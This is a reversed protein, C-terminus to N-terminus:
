RVWGQERLCAVVTNRVLEPSLEGPSDEWGTGSWVALASDAHRAHLVPTRSVAAYLAAATADDADDAVVGVPRVSELLGRLDSRGAPLPLVDAFGALAASFAETVLPSSSVVAVVPKASHPEGTM